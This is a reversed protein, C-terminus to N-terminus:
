RVDTVHRSRTTFSALSAFDGGRPAIRSAWSGLRLDMLYSIKYGRIWFTRKTSTRISLRMRENDCLDVTNAWCTLYVMIEDGALIHFAFFWLSASPVTEQIVSLRGDDGCDICIFMYLFRSEFLSQLLYPGFRLVSRYRGLMTKSAPRLTTQLM